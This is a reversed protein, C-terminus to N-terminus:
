ETVTHQVEALFETDNYQRVLLESFRSLDSKLTAQVLGQLADGGILKGLQTPLSHSVKLLISTGGEISSQFEVSGQSRLGEITMWDMHRVDHQENPGTSCRAVWTVEFGRTSCMWRTLLPPHCTEAADAPADGASSGDLVEVTSIWCMWEPARQLDAWLSWVRELPAAVNARVTHTFLMSTEQGETEVVVMETGEDRSPLAGVGEREDGARSQSGRRSLPQSRLSALNTTLRAGTANRHIMNAALLRPLSSGYHSARAAAEQKQLQRLGQSAGFKNSCLYDM